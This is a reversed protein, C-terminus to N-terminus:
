KANDTQNEQVILGNENSKLLYHILKNMQGVTKINRIVLIYRNNVLIAPIGMMKSLKDGEDEWKKVTEIVGTDKVKEKYEEKSIGIEPLVTDLFETVSKNIQKKHIADFMIKKAKEYKEDGVMALIKAPVELFRGGGTVHVERFNVGKPLKAKIAKFVREYIFCAKCYVSYVELVEGQKFPRDSLVNYERGELFEVKKDEAKLNNPLSLLLFLILLKYM